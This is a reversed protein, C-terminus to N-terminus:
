PSLSTMKQSDHVVSQEHADHPMGIVSFRPTRDEKLALEDLQSEILALRQAIQDRRSSWKEQWALFLNDVNQEKQRTQELCVHIQVLSKGLRSRVSEIQGHDKIESLSM